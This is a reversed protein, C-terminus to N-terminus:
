RDQEIETNTVAEYALKAASYDYGRRLLFSIARQRRKEPPVNRYSKWKKHLLLSASEQVNEDELQHLAADILSRNVGRKLLDATLRRPGHGKSRHRSIVFVRAYEADNVLGLGKCEEVIGNVFSAGGSYKNLRKRLESETRSKFSLYNFAVNRAKRQFDDELIKRQLDTSLTTGM